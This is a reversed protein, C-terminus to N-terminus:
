ARRRPTTIRREKCLADTYDNWAERIATKDHKGYRELVYPLVEARFDEIAQKKTTM